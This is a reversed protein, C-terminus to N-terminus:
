RAVLRLFGQRKYGDLHTYSVPGRRQANGQALVNRTHGLHCVQALHGMQENCAAGAATFGHAHVADDHAQQEAGARLQRKYVDIEYFNKSFSKVNEMPATYKLYNVTIDAIHVRLRILTQRKYVDLHTYSVPLAKTQAAADGKLGKEVAKMLPAYPGTLEASEGSASASAAPSTYLLCSTGTHANEWRCEPRRPVPGQM